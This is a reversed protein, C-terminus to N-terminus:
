WSNLRALTVAHKCDKPLMHPCLSVAQTFTWLESAYLLLAQENCDFVQKTTRQNVGLKLLRDMAVFASRAKRLRAEVSEDANCCWHYLKDLDSKILSCGRHTHELLRELHMRACGINWKRCLQTSFRKWARNVQTRFIIMFWWAPKVIMKHVELM